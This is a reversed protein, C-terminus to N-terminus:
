AVAPAPRVAPGPPWLRLVLRAIVWGVLSGVVWGALVDTPWHAGVYVLLVGLVVNLGAVVGAVVGRVVPSAPRLVVVVAVSLAAARLAHSSPMAYGGAEVLALAGSPRPREVVGKLAPGLLTAVGLAAVAAVAVRWARFTAVVVLGLLACAAIVTANAGANMVDTAFGTMGPTRHATVYRMIQHDLAREKTDQLLVFKYGLM